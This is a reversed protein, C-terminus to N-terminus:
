ISIQERRLGEGGLQVQFYPFLYRDAIAHIEKPKRHIAIIIGSGTKIGFINSSINCFVFKLVQMKLEDDLVQQVM